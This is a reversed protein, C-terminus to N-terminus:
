TRRLPLKDSSVQQKEDMDRRLRILTESVQRGEETLREKDKQAELIEKMKEELEIEFGKVADARSTEETKLVILRQNLESKRINIQEIMTDYRGIKAKVSAADNLFGIIEGNKTHIAERLTQVHRNMQELADDAKAKADDLSSIKDSITQKEEMYAALEKQKQESQVSLETM